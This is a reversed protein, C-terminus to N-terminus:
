SFCLLKVLPKLDMIVPRLNYYLVLANLKLTGLDTSLMKIFKFNLQM